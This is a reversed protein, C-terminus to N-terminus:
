YKDAGLIVLFYLDRMALNSLRNIIRMVTVLLVSLKFSLWEM